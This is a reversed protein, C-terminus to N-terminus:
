IFIFPIAFSLMYICIGGNWQQLAQHHVGKNNAGLCLFTLSLGEKPSNAEGHEAGGDVGDHIPQKAPLVSLQIDIEKALNEAAAATTHSCGVVTRETLVLARVTM